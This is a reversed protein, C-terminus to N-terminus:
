RKRFIPAAHATWNEEWKKESAKKAGEHLQALHASGQEGGAFLGLLCQALDEADGFTRGNLGEVVLEHLADFQYALVPIGCGFMDVVKMPLDLGSSSTHLCVGIDACALLKPYDDTALWLSKIIVSKLKLQAVRAMYHEKQPGKGTIVVFLRPKNQAENNADYHELSTLLISFDEDPTWSTSSVVLRDKGPIFSELEPISTLFQISEEVRLTKFQSPAHDHLTTVLGVLSFHQMLWTKMTDSVTLHAYAHRGLVKEYTRSIKVMPHTKGLRLGLITYALNHWDIILRTKRIYCIFQSLALTPISPPIQVLLYAPPDVAYGLIIFLFFLQHLVKLSGFLPFLIRPKNLVSEPVDPIHQYAINKDELLARHPESGKYGVLQVKFGLKSLSLAHYQMRPSRGIDGLVLVVVTQNKRAFKSGELFPSPLFFYTLTLIYLLFAILIYYIMRYKYVSSIHKIADSYPKILSPSILWDSILIM